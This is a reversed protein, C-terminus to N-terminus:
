PLYESLATIVTQYFHDQSYHDSNTHILGFCPIDNAQVGITALDTFPIHLKDIASEIGKQFDKGSSAVFVIIYDLERQVKVVSQEGKCATATEVTEMLLLFSAKLKEIDLLNRMQSPKIGYFFNDVMFDNSVGEEALEKKLTWLQESQKSILGGNYDRLAGILRELEAFVVQRAKYLDVSHDDRLFMEKNMAVRFISAEKEYKKRVTGVSRTWDPLYELFSQKCDFYDSLKKSDGQLVRVLIVTFYLRNPTQEDFTIFVQPPDQLYQIQGALTLANKLIEEENRPMFVPHVLHEIRGKLDTPLESQLRAIDVSSFSAGNAKSMELYITGIKEAGKRNIIFSGEVVQVQPIHTRVAKVIQREELFENADLFNIGIILGLSQSGSSCTRYTKLYTHRKNPAIKLSEFLWRKFLYMVTVMRCLIKSDRKKKFDESCQLLIHQMEPFIDHHIAHPLRKLLLAIHEQTAGIKQDLSLGKAELIRRAFYSSSAGLRLESGVQPYNKHILELQRQEKVHIVLECFTMKKHQKPFTFNVAHFEIVDLDEGPILWNLVMDLFFKSGSARGDHILYLSTKTPAQKLSNIKVIPLHKVVSDQGGLQEVVQEILGTFYDDLYQRCDTGPDLQIGEIAM